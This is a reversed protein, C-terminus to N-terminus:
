IYLRQIWLFSYRCLIRGRVYRVVMYAIGIVNWWARVSVSVSVVFGCVSDYLTHNTQSNLENGSIRHRHISKKHKAQRVNPGACRKWENGNGNTTLMRIFGGDSKAPFSISCRFYSYRRRLCSCYFCFDNTSTCQADVFSFIKSDTRLTNQTKDQRKFNEIMHMGYMYACCLISLLFYVYTFPM